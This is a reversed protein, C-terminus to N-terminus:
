IWGKEEYFSEEAFGGKRTMFARRKLDVRKEEYFSKQEFGGNKKM